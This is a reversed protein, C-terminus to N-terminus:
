NLVLITGNLYAAFALWALYPLLLAGALPRIRWFARITALVLGIIALIWIFGFTVMEASFFIFSWAYNFALQALFLIIAQRRHATRARLIMVCATAMLAYLIPWVIGFVYGPPNLVSKELGQYWPSGSGSMAGIASGIGVLLLIALGYIVGAPWRELQADASGM